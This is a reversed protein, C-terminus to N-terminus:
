GAAPPWGSRHRPPTLNIVLAIEPDALLAEPTMAAVGYEAAAADAREADADACAKLHIADFEPARQLYTGSINGCGILGITIPASASTM